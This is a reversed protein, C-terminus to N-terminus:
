PSVCAGGWDDGGAVGASVGVGCVVCREAFVVSGALVWPLTPVGIEAPSPSCWAPAVSVVMVGGCLSVVAGDGFRAPVAASKGIDGRACDPGADVDGGFRWLLLEM